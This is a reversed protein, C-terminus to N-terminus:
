PQVRFACAVLAVFGGALLGCWLVNAGLLGGAGAGVAVGAVTGVIRRLYGVTESQAWHNNGNRGNM